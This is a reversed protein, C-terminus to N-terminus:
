RKAMMAGEPDWSNVIKVRTGSCTHNFILSAAYWPLRVCGASAPHGPLEGVHLGFATQNLRMWNPLACGYITSRKGKQVRQTIKFSGRPTYKGRRASSIPTDIVIQNGALLYARQHHIDVIVKTESKKVRALLNKNVRLGQQQKNPSRYETFAPKPAKKKPKFINLLSFGTTRKSTSDAAAASVTSTALIGAAVFFITLRTIHTRM